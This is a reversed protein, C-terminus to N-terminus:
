AGYTVNMWVRGADPESVVLPVFVMEVAVARVARELAPDTSDAIQIKEPDVTGDERVHVTLRLSHAKGDLSFPYLARLRFLIAAHNQLIPSESGPLYAQPQGLQVQATGAPIVTEYPPPPADDKLRSLLWSDGMASFMWISLVLLVAAPVAFTGLLRDPRPGRPVLTFILLLPFIVIGAVVLMAPGLLLALTPALWAGPHLAGM